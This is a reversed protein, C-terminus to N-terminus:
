TPPSICKDLRPGLPGRSNLVHGSGQLRLVTKDDKHPSCSKHALGRPKEKPFPGFQEHWGRCHVPCRSGGAPTCRRNNLKWEWFLTASFLNNWNIWVSIPHIQIEDWFLGSIQNCEIGLGQFSCNKEQSGALLQADTHTHTHAHM